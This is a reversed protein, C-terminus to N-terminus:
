FQGAARSPGCGVAGPQEPLLACDQLMVVLDILQL